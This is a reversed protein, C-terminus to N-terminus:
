HRVFGLASFPELEQPDYWATTGDGHSVRYCLGHADSRDIVTGTAGWRNHARSLGSWDTGGADKTTVVKTGYPFPDDEPWYAGRELGDPQLRGVRMIAPDVIDLYDTYGDWVKYGFHKALRQGRRFNRKEKRALRRWRSSSIMLRKLGDKASKWEPSGEGNQDTIDVLRAMYVFLRKASGVREKRFASLRIAIVGIVRDVKEQSEVHGFIRRFRRRILRRQIIEAVIACLFGVVGYFISEAM